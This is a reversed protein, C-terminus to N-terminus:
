MLAQSLRRKGGKEEVVAPGQPTRLGEYGVPPNRRLEELMEGFRLGKMRCLISQQWKTRLLVPLFGDFQRKDRFCHKGQFTLCLYHNAPLGCGIEASGYICVVIALWCVLGVVLEVFNDQAGEEGFIFLLFVVAVPLALWRGLRLLGMKADFWGWMGHLQAKDQKM